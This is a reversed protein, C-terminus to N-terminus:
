PLASSGQARDHYARLRRGLERALVDVNPELLMTLHNGPVDVVEVNNGAVAGWVRAAQDGLESSPKSRFIIVRGAYPVPGPPTSVIQRLLRKSGMIAEAGGAGGLGLRIVRLLREFVYVLAETRRLQSLSAVHYRTEWGVRHWAPRKRSGHLRPGPGPSDILVVMAVEHGQDKLQGAVEYAVRGYACWGGLFYPGQPQRECVARVLPRVFESLDFPSPPDPLPLGLVPQGTDLRRALPRLIPLPQVFFLPRGAGSPKLAVVKLPPATNQRIIAALSEITPAQFLRAPPLTVGFEREIRALMRMVLLSNGGLDFFDQRV